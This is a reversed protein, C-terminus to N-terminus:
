KYLINLCLRNGGEGLQIVGNRGKFLEIRGTSISIDHESFAFLGGRWWKLLFRGSSAVGTDIIQVQNKGRNLLM